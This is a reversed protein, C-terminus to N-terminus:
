QLSSWDDFADIYIPPALRMNSQCKVHRLDRSYLIIGEVAAAKRTRENIRPMPVTGAFAEYEWPDALHSPCAPTGQNRGLPLLLKEGCM